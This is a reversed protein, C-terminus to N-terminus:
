RLVIKKSDVTYASFYGLSGNTLNTNPNTPALATPARDSTLIDNLTKFYEYSAKDICLLQVTLTDGSLLSRGTRMKLTVENGNTLKDSFLHYRQGTISDQPLPRNVSLNIRYYNGAVPPDKFVIYLYYGIDGDFARFRTAYLSDIAVKEPMTSVANYVKGEAAVTLEYTRGPVGQLSSARYTGPLVEVLTDVRGLNDAITVRANPVPPFYLLPEFYNGTKSLVVSDPSAQDTVIGEIVIQPSAKNLDISVIKECSILTIAMGLFAM